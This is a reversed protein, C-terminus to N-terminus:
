RRTALLDSHAKADHAAVRLEERLLRVELSWREGEGRCGLLLAALDLAARDIDGNALGLAKLLMDEATQPSKGGDTM